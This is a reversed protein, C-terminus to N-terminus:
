TKLSILSIHWSWCIEGSTKLAWPWQSRQFSFHKQEPIVLYQPMSDQFQKQSINTFDSPKDQRILVSLNWIVLSCKFEWHLNFIVLLHGRKNKILDLILSATIKPLTKGVVLDVHIHNQYYTSMNSTLLLHGKVNILYRTM